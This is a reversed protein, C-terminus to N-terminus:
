SSRTMKSNHKWYWLLFTHSRGAIKPLHCVKREEERMTDRSVAVPRHARQVKGARSSYFVSHPMQLEM